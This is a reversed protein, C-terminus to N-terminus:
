EYFHPQIAQKLYPYQIYLDAESIDQEIQLCELSTEIPPPTISTRRDSVKISKCQFIEDKYIVEDLENKLRTHLEEQQKLRATAYHNRSNIPLVPKLEHGFRPRYLNKNIM